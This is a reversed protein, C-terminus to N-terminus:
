VELALIHRHIIDTITMDTDFKGSQNIRPPEFTGTPEVLFRPQANVSLEGALISDDEAKLNM